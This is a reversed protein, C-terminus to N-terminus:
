AKRDRLFFGLLIFLATVLFALPPIMLFNTFIRHKRESDEGLDNMKRHFVFFRVLFFHSLLNLGMALIVINIYMKM